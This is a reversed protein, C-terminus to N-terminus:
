ALRQALEQALRDRNDRTVRVVEIDDRAKIADVFPHPKSTATALVRLRSDLAATVAARFETSCLEMKGIEDIVLAAGAAGEAMARRIEAVAVDDLAPVDVRYKSVAPGRAFHAHAMIARAGSAAELDFGVRVGAERIEGSWFGFVRVGRARLLEVTRRVVTTKGCGPAGVLLIIHRQVPNGKSPTGEASCM